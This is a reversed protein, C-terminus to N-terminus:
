DCLCLHEVVVCACRGGLDLMFLYVGVKGYLWECSYHNSPIGEAGDVPSLQNEVARGRVGM